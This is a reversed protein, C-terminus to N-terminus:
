SVAVRAVRFMYTYTHGEFFGMENPRENTPEITRGNWCVVRLLSVMRKKKKKKKEKPHDYFHTIKQLLSRVLSSVFSRSM